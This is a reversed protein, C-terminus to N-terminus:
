AIRQMKLNWTNCIGTFPPMNLNHVTLFEGVRAFRSQLERKRKLSHEILHVLDRQYESGSAPMVGGGRGHIPKLQNGIALEEIAFNRVLV